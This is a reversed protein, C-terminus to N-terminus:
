PNWPLVLKMAAGRFWIGIFTLLMFITTLLVFVSQYVENKTAARHRLLRFFGAIAAIGLIFPIWGATVVPQLNSFFGNSRIYITDIVVILPTAVAAVGATALALNRGRRSGFWIGSTDTDTKLYPLLGLFFLIGAPVVLVAFTPHLHLLLEQLGAFYWPAKTPNPTLGPNAPQGLPANFFISILLVVAIACLAVATERVLLHPVTAVRSPKAPIAEGQSRPLVLGGAKRIRWFHFGMLLLLLIPIVTTHVAFFFRLTNPGIEPGGMVLERLPIGAVPIYALMGTTVTVAWYGLQDYPLLYGSFNAMLVLLFLAMGIVWTFQRPAQFAGTFFVRLLHLFIAAVLIGASWHHINRILQGFRVTEQLHLISAYAGDPVPIYVFKLLIGTVMQTLILVVSIGGLGWSLTFRLTAEPVTTPRFHLWLNQLLFRRGERGLSPFVSLMIRYFINRKELSDNNLQDM